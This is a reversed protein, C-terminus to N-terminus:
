MTALPNASSGANRIRGTKKEPPYMGVLKVYGGLPIAKVGYATEGRRFSWLTKGFGVFYETVKVGFLKGPLMHGVEHLAISAMILAFFLVAGGIYILTDM